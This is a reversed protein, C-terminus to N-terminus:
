AAVEPPTAFLDRHAVLATLRGAAVAALRHALWADVDPALGPDQETAAAARGRLWETLLGAHEAATLRWPSPAERVAMGHRRLARAVADPADPGLLRGGAGDRRQHADFAAAVAADLPHAPDLEVGGTVSLTWLVPAGAAACAGALADAEAETLLDLLASATVATAGALDAARLATLDARVTRVEVPSGDAATLGATRRQALALLAPDRDYLVWTQPGPLRPALWRALSGTGSGLDRLVLEGGRAGAVARLAEVLEDSRAAHDAPERAELWGPDFDAVTNAGPANGTANGTANEPANEPTSV